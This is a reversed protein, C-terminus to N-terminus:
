ANYVRENTGEIKMTYDFLKKHNKHSIYIITKDKLFNRMNKIIDQELKEEVESLSEDLLFIDANSMLTRALIIRQKEGGSLNEEYNSLMTEFRLPKKDIIENIHCIECVLLFKGWNMARHMIINEIITGKILNSNQPLYVIHERLTKIDYDDINIKGIKITGYSQKLVRIMINCLTSKGSGSRGLLQIHASKPIKLKIDKLIYNYQNYTFTINDLEIDGNQFEQLKNTEKETEINLFDNSKKLIHKLHRLKPLLNIMNEIAHLLYNGITEILFFDILKIKEKEICIIGITILIFNIIEKMWLQCTNYYKYFDDKEKKQILFSIYNKEIQEQERNELNLYMYTERNELSNLLQMSFLNQNEINQHEYEDSKKQFLLQFLFYIISIIGYVFCFTENLPYLMSFCIIITIVYLVGNKIVETYFYKLDLQEWVRTLYDGFERSKFINLPIKILHELMSSLHLLELNKNLEKEENQLAKIGLLRFWLLILFCIFIFIQETRQNLFRLEIKFFFSSIILLTYIFIQIIIVRLFSKKNKGLFQFILYIISKEKPCCIIKTKPSMIIVVESWIWFFDTFSMTKKGQSPDMLIVKDERIEYLVMYHNLGNNLVVHVIAPLPFLNKKFNEKKVKTGYSDFGYKKLAEIIHFASTGRKTTFTDTRIKELTAYGNYYKLISQICCVGCDKRDQQKVIVQKLM